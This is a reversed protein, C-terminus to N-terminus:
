HLRDLVHRRNRVVAATRGLAPSDSKHTAVSARAALLAAAFSGLEKQLAGLAERLLARDLTTRVSGALVSLARRASTLRRLIGLLEALLLLDLADIAEALLLEAVGEFLHRRERSDRAVVKERCKLAPEIVHNVAHTERRATFCRTLENPVAM